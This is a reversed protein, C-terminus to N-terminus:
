IQLESGTLGIAKVANHCANSQGNWEFYHDTTGPVSAMTLALQKAEGGFFVTEIGDKSWSEVSDASFNM